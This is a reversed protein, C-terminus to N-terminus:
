GEHAGASPLNLNLLSVYMSYRRTNSAAVAVSSNTGINDTIEYDHAERM